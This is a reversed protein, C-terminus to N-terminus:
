ERFAEKKLVWRYCLAFVLMMGLFLLMSAAALKAYNLNGFTNNMFHQLMYLSEHPHVGGILLIERFCKFANILSFVAAFFLSYWMQPMTIARFQQWPAAGDLRAADYQEEDIAILGSLLLIVGYGTNKWLFLLIATWFAADSCLWDRVPLGLITTLMPLMGNEAFVADVLIVTGTVPLIYPLLLVSKLLRFRQTYRRLLLAIGYAIGLLLPLGTLLFRLTNRCALLFLRNRLLSRFQELGVFTQTQGVGWSFGNRLVLLFPITYFILCGLLIPCVLLFGLWAKRTGIRM